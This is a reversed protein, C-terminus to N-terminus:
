IQSEKDTNRRLSEIWELAAERSMGNLPEPFRDYGFFRTLAGRLKERGYDGSIYYDAAKALDYLKRAGERVQYLAEALMELTALDTIEPVREALSEYGRQADDAVLLLQEYEFYGGSM